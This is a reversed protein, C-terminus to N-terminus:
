LKTVIFYLVYGFDDSETHLSFKSIGSDYFLKTVEEKNRQMFHWDCFWDAPIAPFTKERNKHTLILKGGAELLGFSAKILEKAEKDPLYDLLGSSYVLNQKDYIQAIKGKKLIDDAKEKIFRLSVNRPVIPMLVEQSFRLAEDDWDLLGFVIFSKTKIDLLSEKVERSSGCAIDLINIKSLQTEQIFKQLLGELHDKRLRLAVACPSKLFINDFYTGVANGSVPKNDYIFELMEYGCPSGGPKEFGQKVIASKYVWTGLLKRFHDKVKGTVSEDSLLEDLCYGKLLIQNNIHELKKELERSYNKEQAAQVSLRNIETIYDLIDTFFFDFVQKKVEPVEIGALLGSIQERILEKRLEAKQTENLGIFELGYLSPGGEVSRKWVLRADTNLEFDKGPFSVHLVVEPSLIAEASSLSLGSESFDVASACVGKALQVKFGTKVRPHLRKEEASKAM